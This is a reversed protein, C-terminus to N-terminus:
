SPSLPSAQQEVGSPWLRKGKSHKNIQELIQQHLVMEEMSANLVFLPERAVPKEKAVTQLVPTKELEIILSEQGRTMCLYVEALIQADLLAGHLTRRSNDVRYRECLANLNNKKGPHLDKAMKLTDIVNAYTKELSSLSLLSLEYNLFALDFPANHIILEAGKVFELLEEVIEKFKPKDLLFENTLGHIELAGKEIEREPNLYRHFHRGTLSRNALEVCGIEIIRHGLTPELGTTETDLFIQRISM